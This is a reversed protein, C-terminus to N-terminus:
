DSSVPKALGKAVAEDFLKQMARSVAQASAQQRQSLAEQQAQFRAQQKELAKRQAQEKAEQSAHDRQLARQRTELAQQRANLMRQAAERQEVYAATTKAMSDAFRQTQLEADRQALNADIRALSAQRQAYVADNAALGAQRGALAGQQGALRGQQEALKIQPAYIAKARAILTRDHTLWSKNGRRFWLVPQGSKRMQKVTSADATTGEIILSHGDYLAFGYPARSDISIDKHPAHFGFAPATPAPPAPPPAPVPPAPAVAPVPPVPPVQPARAARPVPPVPPVAPARAPMVRPAPPAPPAMPISPPPPRMTSGAQAPTTQAPAHAVVVRYPVICAGAILGVLLWDRLRPLHPTDQLMAIRRKLHRFTPSGAGAMCPCPTREIGLTLLLRGYAQTGVQQLRLAEGDCAAERQLAYERTALHVLPNFFFLVGALTPIWGFWLDNRRIHALEHALAMSQEAATLGHGAPLLIVPHWLGSVQPSAIAESLRIAPYRRLGLRGALNACLAQLQADRVPRAARRVRRANRWRRAMVGFQVLLGALWLAVLAQRWPLESAGPAAMPADSAIPAAPDVRQVTAVSRDVPAAPMPALPTAIRAATAPLLPLRVPSTWLLGVLLQVALLWWLLCRTAAPLRPLARGLLWLVAILLSAQVTTWALRPLLTDAFSAFADM